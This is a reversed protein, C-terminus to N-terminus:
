KLVSPFFVRCIITLDIINQNTSLDIGKNFHIPALMAAMVKDDKRRLIIAIFWSNQLLFNMFNNSSKPVKNCGLAYVKVWKVM